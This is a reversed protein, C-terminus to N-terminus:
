KLADLELNAKEWFQETEKLKLQRQEYNAFFDPNESLEKFREPIALESDIEKIEKELSTISNYKKNFADLQKEHCTDLTNNTKQYNYRRKTKKSSKGKLKDNIM